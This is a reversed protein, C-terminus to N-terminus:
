GKGGPGRVVSQGPEQVERVQRVERVERVGPSGPGELWRELAAGRKPPRTPRDGSGRPRQAAVTCRAAELAAPLTRDLSEDAGPLVAEEM